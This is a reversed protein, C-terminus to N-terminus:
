SLFVYVYVYSHADHEVEGYVVGSIDPYRFAAISATKVEQIQAELKKTLLHMNVKGIM